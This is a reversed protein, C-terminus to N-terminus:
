SFSFLCVFSVCEITQYSSSPAWVLGFPVNLLWANVRASTGGDLGTILSFSTGGDIVGACYQHLRRLWRIVFICGIATGELFQPLTAIFGFLHLIITMEVSEIVDAASGSPKETLAKGGAGIHPVEYIM